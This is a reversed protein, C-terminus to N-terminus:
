EMRRLSSTFMFYMAKNVKMKKSTTEQVGRVSEEKGAVGTIVREMEGVCAKVGVTGGGEGVGEAVGEGVKVGVEVTVGSGFATM